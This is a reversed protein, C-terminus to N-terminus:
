ALKAAYRSQSIAELARMMDIGDGLLPKFLDGVKELRNCITRITFDGPKLKSNVEEWTLPTSVTAGPKPRVSYAAALTQAERNQLFDVYVKGPRKSPSREVSTVSPLEAHVLRAILEAFQRGQDYDYKAGIPIYIHIGRSGSTKPYSPVDIDDLIRRVVLATEVVKDFKVDLPDLDIVVYDPCDLSSIRSHWPNLEICGLNALYVLAAENQCVIYRINKDGSESHIEIMDIWSPTEKAADKQFFSQGTIGNPNRRM